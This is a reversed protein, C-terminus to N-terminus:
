SAASGHSARTRSDDIHMSGLLLGDLVGHWTTPRFDGHAVLSACLIRGEQRWRHLDWSKPPILVSRGLWAATEALGRQYNANLEDATPPPQWTETEVITALIYADLATRHEPTGPETALM